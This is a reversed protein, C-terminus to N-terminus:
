ALAPMVEAVVLELTEWGIAPDIGAALPHLAASGNRRVLEVCEEPTVIAYNPSARLEDVTDASTKWSSRTSIPIASGCRM